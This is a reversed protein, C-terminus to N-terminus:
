RAVYQQEYYKLYEGSKIARWWQQNDRYWQITTRIAEEFRHLRLLASGAGYTARVAELEHGSERCGRAAQSFHLIASAADGLHVACWGMAM